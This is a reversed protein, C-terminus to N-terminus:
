VPVSPALTPAHDLPPLGGSRRGLDVNKSMEDAPRLASAYASSPPTGQDRPPTRSNSHGQQEHQQQQQLQGRDTSCRAEEERAGQAVSSGGGGRGSGGRGRGTGGAGGVGGGGSDEVESAAPAATAVDEGVGGADQPQHRQVGPAARTERWFERPARHLGRPSVPFSIHSHPEDIMDDYKVLLKWANSCVLRPWGPYV